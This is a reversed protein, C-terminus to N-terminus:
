YVSVLKEVINVIQNRIWQHTLDNDFQKHWAIHFESCPIEIPLNKIVCYHKNEVLLTKSKVASAILDTSKELVRFIADIYPVSLVTDRPPLGKSALFQNTVSPFDPNEIRCAIHKYACYETLTIKKKKALPHNRNLICVGIDKLLLQTRISPPMTTARAIALDYAGMEFPEANYMQTLPIINISINPANHRIIPILKPLILSAWHDSLGIKIMRNCKTLDFPSDRDIINRLEELVDRLRPHLTKAYSTLLMKSKKRVLLDDKLIGRLQHLNNSMTAQAICIKKAARTVNQETLLVDLAILLNLNIRYLDM